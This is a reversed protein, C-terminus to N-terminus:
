IWIVEAHVVRTFSNLAKEPWGYFLHNAIVTLKSQLEFVTLSVDLGAKVSGRWSWPYATLLKLSFICYYVHTPKKYAHQAFNCYRHSM